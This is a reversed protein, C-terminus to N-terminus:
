AAEEGRRCRVVTVPIEAHRALEHSVSGQLLSRVDGFGRSGVVVLDVGLERATRAITEAPDGQAIRPTVEVGAARARQSLRRAIPSAGGIEEIEALPPRAHVRHPPKVALVVLSAGTERALGIAFDLAADASPSGDSGILITKM